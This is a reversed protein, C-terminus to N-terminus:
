SIIIEAVPSARRFSLLKLTLIYKLYFECERLQVFCNKKSIFIIMKELKTSNNLLFRVFELENDHSEFLEEGVDQESVEALKYRERFFENIEITKINQLSPFELDKDKWYESEVYDCQSEFDFGRLEERESGLFECTDRTFDIKVILKELDLCSRLLYVIGPLEYLEFGTRLELCTVKLSLPAVRPVEFATLAEIEYLTDSTEEIVLTKLNRNEICISLDAYKNCSEVTLDELLPCGSTLCNIADKPM